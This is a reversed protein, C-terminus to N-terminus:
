PIRVVCSILAPFGDGSPRVKAITRADGSQAILAIHDGSANPNSAEALWGM